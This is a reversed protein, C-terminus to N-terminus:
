MVVVGIRSADLVGVEDNAITIDVMGTPAPTTGLMLNLMRTVGPCEYAAAVLAAFSVDTDIAENHAAQIAAQLAAETVSGYVTCVVYIEIPTARDFRISKSTGWPDTATASTGGFTERGSSKTDYIAQALATDEAAEGTGDWIAPRIAHPPIGDGDIIDTDNEFVRADLVGPVDLLAAAIAATTGKGIAALSAERETRLADLSQQDTGATAETSNSASVLGLIPTNIVTLTEAAAAYTSGTGVSTFDATQTGATAAIIESDNIWINAAEGEVSLLLTNAPITTARDFTLTVGAVHGYDAGSRVVGTLKCVGVLLAAVATDPDLGGAAAELTEWTQALEESVIANINGLVTKESLDLKTSIKERQWTELAAIIEAYTRRVFGTDTLGYTTTM